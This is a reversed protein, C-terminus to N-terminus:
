KLLSFSNFFHNLNENNEQKARSVVLLTYIKGADCLKRMTVTGSSDAFDITFERVPREATKKMVSDNRVMGGISRAYLIVDYKFTGEAWGCPDILKNTDLAAPIELCTVSYYSNDEAEMDTLYKKYTLSMGELQTTDKATGPFEVSYKGEKSETKEWRPSRGCSMLTAVSLFLAIKKM